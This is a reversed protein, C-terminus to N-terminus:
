FIGLFHSFDLVPSWRRIDFLGCNLIHVKQYSPPPPWIKMKKGFTFACKLYKLQLFFLNTKFHNKPLKLHKLNINKKRLPSEWFEFSEWNRIKGLNPLSPPDDFNGIKGLNFFCTVFLPFLGCNLIHPLGSKWTKGM